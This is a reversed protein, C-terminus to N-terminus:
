EIRHWHFIPPVDACVEIILLQYGAALADLLGAPTIKGGHKPPKLVVVFRIWRIFFNM